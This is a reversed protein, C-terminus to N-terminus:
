EAKIKGAKIIPEWFKRFERMREGLEEPTSVSSEYGSQALHKRYAPDEAAKAIARNIVKVIEPPTARPVVFAWWNPSHMGPFGAEDFTPVDPLLASRKSGGVALARLAGDNVQASVSGVGIILAQVDNQRMALLIPAVGRYPIHLLDVKAVSKFLEMHLNPASGPGFSGYNLANKRAFEVFEALTKVPLAPSVAFAGPFTLLTAVPAFDREPDYPLKDYLLPYLALAPDPALLLTHGDAKAQAAAQMGVINAAGVINEVVVPKGWERNLLEAIKRGVIDITGGAAFPVIIRVTGSPYEQAISAPSCTLSVLVGLAVCWACRLSRSFVVSM